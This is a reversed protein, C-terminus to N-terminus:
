LNSHLEHLASRCHCAALSVPMSNQMASVVGYVLGKGGIRPMPWNRVYLGSRSFGGVWIGFLMNFEKAWIPMVEMESITLLVDPIIWGSECKIRLVPM